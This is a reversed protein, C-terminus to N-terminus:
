SAKYIRKSNIMNEIQSLLNSQKLVKDKGMSAEIIANICINRVDGGSLGKSIDALYDFDLKESPVKKPIHLKYIKKLASKNPLQFEIHQAIRRNIAEDYNGYFNTAFLCVGEFKDMEQMLINRNQNVSNSQGDSSLSRRKSLLSDAEDFFIIANHKKAQSFIEKINKGTEGVWKSITESYDVQILNMKLEHAICKAAFTKGTGPAGYLNMGVGVSFNPIDGLGWDNMLMDKNNVKHIGLKILKKVDKSLIVDKLPQCESHEILTGVSISHGEEGLDNLVLIESSNEDVLAHKEEPLESYKQEFTSKPLIFRRRDGIRLVERHGSLGPLLKYVKKSKNNYFYKM